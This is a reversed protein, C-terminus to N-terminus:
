CILRPRSAAKEPALGVATLMAQEDYRLVLALIDVMERDGGPKRLMHEQLLRFGNPLEAFPAGNHLAGPKRQVISLYHRWDCITRPPVDHSRQIRRAHECLTQGESAIVLREPYVGLSVPRSTFSASVSHRNRVFSSLCTPSRFHWAQDDTARAASGSALRPCLGCLPQLVEHLGSGIIGCEVTEANPTAQTVQGGGVEAM